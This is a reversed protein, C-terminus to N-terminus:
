EGLWRCQQIFAAVEGVTMTFTGPSEPLSRWQKEQKRDAVASLTVM